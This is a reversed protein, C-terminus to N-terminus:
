SIAAWVGCAFGVMVSLGVWWLEWFGVGASGVGRHVRAVHRGCDAVTRMRM